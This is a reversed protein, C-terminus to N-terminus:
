QEVDRVGRPSLYKMSTFAFRLKPRRLKSFIFQVRNVFNSYYFANQVSESVSFVWLLWCNSDWDKLTFKAILDLETQFFVATLYSM